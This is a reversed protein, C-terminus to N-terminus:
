YSVARPRPVPRCPSSPTTIDARRFYFPMHPRVKSGFIEMTTSRHVMKRPKKPTVGDTSSGAKM